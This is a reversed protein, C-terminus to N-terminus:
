YNAIQTIHYRYIPEGNKAGYFAIGELKYIHKPLREGNTDSTWFHNGNDAVWRYVLIGNVVNAGYFTIGEM